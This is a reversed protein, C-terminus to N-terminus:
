LRTETLDMDEYPTYSKFTISNLYDFRHKFRIELVKEEGSDRENTIPKISERSDNIERLNNTRIVEELARATVPTERIIPLNISETTIKIQKIIIDKSTLQDIINFTNNNTVNLIKKMPSETPTTKTSSFNTTTEFNDSLSRKKLEKKLQITKNLDNNTQSNHNIVIESFIKLKFEIIEGTMGIQTLPIGRHDIGNPEILDMSCHHEVYIPLSRIGQRIVDDGESEGRCKIHIFQLNYRKKYNDPIRIVSNQTSTIKEVTLNRLPTTHNYKLMIKTERMTDKPIETQGHIALLGFSERIKSRSFPEALNHNATSIHRMLCEPIEDLHLTNVLHTENEIARELELLFNRQKEQMPLTSNLQVTRRPHWFPLDTQHFLSEPNRRM